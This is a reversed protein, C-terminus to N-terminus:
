RNRNKADALCWVHDLHYTAYELARAYGRADNLHGGAIAHCYKRWLDHMRVVEARVEFAVGCRECRPHDHDELEGFHDEHIEPQRSESACKGCLVWFMGSAPDGATWRTVDQMKM